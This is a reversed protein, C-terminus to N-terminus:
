TGCTWMEVHNQTDLSVVKLTLGLHLRAHAPFRSWPHNYLCYLLVKNLYKLFRCDFVIAFFIIAHVHINIIIIWFSRIWVFVCNPFFVSNMREIREYHYVFIATYESKRIMQKRWVDCVRECAYVCVWPYLLVLVLSPYLKCMFLPM